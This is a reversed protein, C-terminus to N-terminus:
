RGFGSASATFPPNPMPGAAGASSNVSRDFPGLADSNEGDADNSPAVNYAEASASTSLSRTQTLQVYGAPATAAPVLSAIAGAFATIWVNRLPRARADNRTHRMKRGGKSAPKTVM